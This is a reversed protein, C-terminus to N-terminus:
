RETNSFLASWSLAMVALRFHFVFKPKLAFSNHYESYSYDVKNVLNTPKLSSSITISYASFFSLNEFLIKNNKLYKQTPHHIRLYFIELINCDISLFKSVDDVSHFYQLHRDLVLVNCFFLFLFM